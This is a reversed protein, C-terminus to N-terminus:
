HGDLGLARRASNRRNNAENEEERKRQEDTPICPEQLAEWQGSINIEVQGRCIFTEITQAGVTIPGSAGSYADASYCVGDRAPYWHKDDMSCTTTDGLQATWPQRTSEAVIGDQFGGHYGYYHGIAAGFGLAVIYILILGAIKM